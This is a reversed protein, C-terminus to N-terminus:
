WRSRFSEGIVDFPLNERSRINPLCENKEQQLEPPTSIEGSAIAEGKKHNELKLLAKRLKFVKFILVSVTEDEESFQAHM